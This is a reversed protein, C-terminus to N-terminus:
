ARGEPPPAHGAGTKWRTAAEMELGTSYDLQRPEGPENEPQRTYGDVRWQRVADERWPRCRWQYGRFPDRTRNMWGLLQEHLQDRVGKLAPDLIRNHLDHPDERLAYLEDSDCLHLALKYEDSVLARMPQFGGFGDHDVEYRGFEIFAPRGTPSADGEVQPRLSLGQFCRPREIGLCDLVTAPLDIHSVTHPYVRGRPVGPGEAILPIRAIDDYVAPGKMSLRHADMADGHDSTFLMTAEPAQARGADLVRGILEDAFANCRMLRRNGLRVGEDQPGPSIQSWIRQYDPKGSLDDLLAPSDFLYDGYMRSYPPPCLFPDHPEDYSVVLLFDQDRHRAIYDLARQTVRHGFTYEPAIGEDSTAAQRSRFREQATMEDLYNKMDYWYDPDWGEPCLGKGFYDGGDLHWKGVYAAQIGARRVWQGLHRVDAHLPMCNAWSGNSHPYLGTFLASRAPGCVPQVSYAREFRLGRAAMEDLRPTHMQRSGYCGLMDWRTTDTMILIFQRKM